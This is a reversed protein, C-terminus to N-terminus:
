WYNWSNVLDVRGRSHAAPDVQNMERTATNDRNKLGTMELSIM